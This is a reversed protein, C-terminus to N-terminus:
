FIVNRPTTSQMTIQDGKPAIEGTTDQYPWRPDAVGKQIEKLNHIAQEYRIKADEYNINPNALQLLHWLAINKVLRSLLRDTFTASTDAIEDGFLQVLDYRTLYMKAESIATDIAETVLDSNSRTIEDIIETYMVSALDAALIIPAYSM